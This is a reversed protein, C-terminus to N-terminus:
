RHMPRQWTSPFQHCLTHWPPQCCTVCGNESGAPMKASWHYHDFLCSSTSHQFIRGHSSINWLCHGSSCLEISSCITVKLPVWGLLSIHWPCAGSCKRQFGRHNQLRHLHDNHDLQTFSEWVFLSQLKPKILGCSTKKLVVPAWAEEADSRSQLFVGCCNRPQNDAQFHSFDQWFLCLIQQHWPHLFFFAHGNDLLIVVSRNGQDWGVTSNFRLVFSLAPAFWVFANTSTLLGYMTFSYLVNM